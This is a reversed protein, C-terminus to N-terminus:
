APLKLPAEVQNILRPRPPRHLHISSVARRAQAQYRLACKQFTRNISKLIFKSQNTSAINLFSFKSISSDRLIHFYYLYTCTNHLTLWLLVHFILNQSFSFTIKKQDLANTRKRSTAPRSRGSAPSAVKLHHQKQSRSRRM